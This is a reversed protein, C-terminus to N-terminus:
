HRVFSLVLKAILYVALSLIPYGFIWMILYGSTDSSRLIGGFVLVGIGIAFIVVLALLLRDLLKSGKLHNM